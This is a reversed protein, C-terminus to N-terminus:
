PCTAGYRSSPSARDRAGAGARSGGPSRPERTRAPRFPRARALEGCGPWDFHDMESVPAEILEEPLHPAQGGVRDDEDAREKTVPGSPIERGDVRYSRDGRRRAHRDVGDALRRDPRAHDPPIEHAPLRVTLRGRLQGEPHERSFAWGRGFLARGLGHDIRSLELAPPEIRATKGDLAVDQELLRGDPREVAPVDDTGHASEQDLARQDPPEEDLTSLAAARLFPERFAQPELREEGVEGGDERGPRRRLDVSLDVGS